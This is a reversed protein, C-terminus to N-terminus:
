KKKKVEKLIIDENLHQVGTGKYSEPERLSRIEAAVQGVARKNIGEIVVETLTPVSIKVEAPVKYAVSHSYRLDLNLIDGALNAKYGVGKLILTKKFGYHVGQVLNYLNQRVTGAIARSYLEPHSALVPMKLGLRLAQKNEKVELWFPITYSSNGLPGAANIKMGQMSIEVNAPIAIPARAVRSLQFKIADIAALALNSSM